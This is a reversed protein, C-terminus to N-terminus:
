PAIYVAVTDTCTTGNSGGVEVTIIQGGPPLIFSVEQGVAMAGARDSSWMVYDISGEVPEATAVFRVSTGAPYGMGPPPEAIACLPALSAVLLGSDLEAPEGGGGGGLLVGPDDVPDPLDSNPDLSDNGEPQTPAEPVQPLTVETGLEADTPQPEPDSACAALLVLPLLRTM